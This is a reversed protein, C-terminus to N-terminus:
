RGPGKSEHHRIILAVLVGAGLLVVALCGGAVLALVGGGITAGVFGATAARWALAVVIGALLAPAIVAWWIPALRHARTAGILIALCVLALLLGFFGLAHELWPAM